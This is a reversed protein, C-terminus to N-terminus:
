IIHISSEFVNSQSSKLRVKNLKGFIIGLFILNINGSLVCAIGLVRLSGFNASIAVLFWNLKLDLVDFEFGLFTCLSLGFGFGSVFYIPLVMRINLDLM